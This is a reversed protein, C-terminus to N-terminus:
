SSEAMSPTDSAEARTGVEPPPPPAPGDAEVEEFPPPPPASEEATAEPEPTMLPASPAMYKTLIERRDENAPTEGELFTPGSIMEDGGGRRGEGRERRGELLSPFRSHGRGRLNIELREEFRGKSNCISM